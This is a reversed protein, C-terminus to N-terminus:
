GVNQIIGVLFMILLGTLALMVAITVSNMIFNRM